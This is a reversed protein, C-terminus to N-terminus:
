RDLLAKIKPQLFWIGFPFLSLLILVPVLYILDVKKQLETYVIIKASKILLYLLSFVYAASSLMSAPLLIGPDTFFLPFIFLVIGSFFALFFATHYKKKEAINNKDLIKFISYHWLIYNTLSLISIVRFLFEMFFNREDMSIFVSVLVLPILFIFLFQEKASKYIINNRGFFKM